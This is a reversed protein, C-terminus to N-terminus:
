VVEHIQWVDLHDTQLRRWSEELMRMAVDKGRGHTCVKTMVVAKDRKGKLAQGLRTESEGDHYEWANDFFNVGADLAREVIKTAESAEKVTGLHFGGLGMAPVHLGSKGLPRM